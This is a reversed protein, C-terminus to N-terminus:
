LTCCEQAKPPAPACFAASVARNQCASRVRSQGPGIGTASRTIARRRTAGLNRMNLMVCGDGLEVAESENCSAITDPVLAGAQWTAGHDDSYIVGRPPSTPAPPAPRASRHWCGASSLQIGHRDSPWYPGPYVMQFCEFTATIDTPPEVEAAM